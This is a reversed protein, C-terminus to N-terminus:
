VSIVRDKYDVSKGKFYNELIQNLHEENGPTHETKFEVTIQITQPDNM